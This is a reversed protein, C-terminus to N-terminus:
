SPLLRSLNRMLSSLKHVTHFFDSSAHGDPQAAHEKAQERGTMRELAFGVGAAGALLAPSAARARAVRRLRTTCAIVSRRRELLRREAHLIQSTLSMPQHPPVPASAM